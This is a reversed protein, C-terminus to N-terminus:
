KSWIAQWCTEGRDLYKKEFHTRPIETDLNLPSDAITGQSVVKLRWEKNAFELAEQFYSEINTSLIIKGDPRLVRIIESFFPMRLWRKSPNKPEPNPYLLFCNEISEDGIEHTIYSIANGHVGLLNTLSAHHQARSLFKDFKERTHEIALILREPNKKAYQIPHLGVGCGIELDLHPIQNLLLFNGFSRYSEPKPIQDRQFARMPFDECLTQDRDIELTSLKFM